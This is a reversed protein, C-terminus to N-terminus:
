LPFLLRLLNGVFASFILGLLIPVIFPIKPTVWVRQHGAQLLLQLEHRLNEERKPKTYLVNKGEVMREMLWIHAKDAERADMRYGFLAQPFRLDGKSANRLLYGVPTLAVIVAATFIVAFTMPFPLAGITGSEAIMPFPGISSYSPFVIALAVLAKADAGGRIADIMYLVVVSLMVIPVAIFDLAESQAGWLVGFIVISAIAISYKLIILYKASRAEENGTLYIDSLIALIPIMILLYEIPLEELAVQLVIAALGFVSLAIWYKNPVKRTRIDSVSAYGLIAVAVILRAADLSESSDM